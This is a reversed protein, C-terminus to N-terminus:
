KCLETLEVYRGMFLYEAVEATMPEITFDVFPIGNLLPWPNEDVIGLDRKESALM